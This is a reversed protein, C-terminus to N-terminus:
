RTQAPRLLPGNTVVGAIVLVWVVPVFLVWPGPGGGSWPDALEFM